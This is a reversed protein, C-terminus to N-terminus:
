RKISKKKSETLTMTPQGQQDFNTAVRIINAAEFKGPAAALEEPTGKIGLDLGILDGRQNRGFQEQHIDNWALGRDVRIAKILDTVEQLDDALTAGKNKKLPHSKAKKQMQPLSKFHDFIQKANPLNNKQGITNLILNKLSVPYGGGGGTGGDTYVLFSKTKGKRYQSFSQTFRSLDKRSKILDGFTQLEGRQRKNIMSQNLKYQEPNQAIEQYIREIREQISPVGSNYMFKLKDADLRSIRNLKDWEEMVYLYIYSDPVVRQMVIYYLEKTPNALTRANHSSGFKYYVVPDNLIVKGMSYVQATEPIDKSVLHLNKAANSVDHFLKIVRKDDIGIVIGEAGSAQLPRMKHTRMSFKKAGPLKSVILDVLKSSLPNAPPRQEEDFGQQFYFEENLQKKNKVIRIKMKKM